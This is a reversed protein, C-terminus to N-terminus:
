MKVDPISTIEKIDAEIMAAKTVVNVPVEAQRVTSVKAEDKTYNIAVVSLSIQLLGIMLYTVLLRRNKCLAISDHILNGM